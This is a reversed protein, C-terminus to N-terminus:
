TKCLSSLPFRHGGAKQCKLLHLELLKLDGQWATGGICGLVRELACGDGQQERGGEQVQQGEAAQCLILGKLFNGKIGMSFTFLLQYGLWCTLM